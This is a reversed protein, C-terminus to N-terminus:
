GQYFAKEAGGQPANQHAENVAGHDRVLGDRFAQAADLVKQAAKEQEKLADDIEAARGLSGSDLGLSNLNEVQQAIRRVRLEAIEADASRIVEAAAALQQDYTTDAAVPMTNGGTTPPAPEGLEEERIGHLVDEDPHQGPSPPIPQPKRSADAMEDPAANGDQDVPGEYGSERLDFFKRDAATEPKGDTRRTTAYPGPEPKPAPACGLHYM